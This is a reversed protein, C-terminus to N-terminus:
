ADKRKRVLSGGLTMHTYIAPLCVALEPKVSAWGGAVESCSLEPSWGAEANETANAGDFARRIEM